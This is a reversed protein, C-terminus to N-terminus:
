TWPPPASIGLGALEVGRGANAVVTSGDLEGGDMGASEVGVRRRRRGVGGIAGGVDAAMASSDFCTDGAMGRAVRGMLSARSFSFTCVLGASRREVYRQTSVCIGLPVAAERRHEDARAEAEAEADDEGDEEELSACPWCKDSESKAGSSRPFLAVIDTRDCVGGLMACALCGCDKLRAAAGGFSPRRTIRVYARCTCLTHSPLTM